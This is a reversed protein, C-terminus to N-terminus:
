RSTLQTSHVLQDINRDDLMQAIQDCPVPQGFLFGQVTDCGYHKVYDYQIKTEVGEAVVKLNLNHAMAIITRVLTEDDPDQGLDRVFSQDIKLTHLPLQKLRSLSSYATGFDDISM